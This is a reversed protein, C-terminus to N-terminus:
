KAEYLADMFKPVPEKPWIEGKDYGNQDIVVDLVQYAIAEISLGWFYFRIRRAIKWALNLPSGAYVLWCMDNFILSYWRPGCYKVRRRTGFLKAYLCHIYMKPAAVNAALANAQWEYTNFANELLSIGKPTTFLKPHDSATKRLFPGHLIGHGVTEHWETFVRRPDNEEFLKRDVLATNDKPSFKGLIPEGFDDVGLDQNKDLSIEHHPYIVALYMEDFDIGHKLVYDAGVEALYELWLQHAEERIQQKSMPIPKPLTYM